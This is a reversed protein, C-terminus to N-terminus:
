RLSQEMFVGVLRIDNRLSDRFKMAEADEGWLENQYTEDLQSAAFAEEPSMKGEVLAVGLVLSGMAAVASQLATLSWVDYRDLHDRLATLAAEPQSIPIVGATVTLAVGWHGYMWDLLPQWLRRQREVLDDPGEARYCLLDSGAYAMLQDLIMEREPGVRDLATSALQTLPIGDARIEDGQAQWEAAIAEALPLFPVRLHRGGPTRVAKGDLMIAFGDGDPVAAATKYFRKM